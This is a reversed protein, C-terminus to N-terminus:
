FVSGSKATKKRDILAVGIGGVFLGAVAAVGSDKALSPKQKGTPLAAPALLKLNNDNLAQNVNVRAILGTYGKRTDELATIKDGLDAIKVNRNAAAAAGGGTTAKLTEVQKRMQDVQADIPDIQQKQIENVFGQAESTDTKQSQEVLVNAMQDAGAQAVAADDSTVDIYIIDTGSNLVIEARSGVTFDAPNSQGLQDTVRSKAENILDPTGLLKLYTQTVPSVGSPLANRSYYAAQGPQEIYSNVRGSELLSTAVYHRPLLFMVGADLVVAAAVIGLLIWKRRWIRCLYDSLEM